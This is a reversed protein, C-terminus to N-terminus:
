VCLWPLSCCFDPFFGRGRVVSCTLSVVGPHTWRPPGRGSQVVAQEWHAHFGEIWCLRQGDSRWGGDARGGPSEEGAERSIAAQM